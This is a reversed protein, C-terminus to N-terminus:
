QNSRWGRDNCRKVEGSSLSISM